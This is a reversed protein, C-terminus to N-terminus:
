KLCGDSREIQTEFNIGGKEVDFWIQEPVETRM